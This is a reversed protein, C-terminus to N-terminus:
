ERRDRGDRLPPNLGQPREALAGSLTANELEITRAREKEAELEHRLRRNQAKQGLWLAGFLIVLAIQVIEAPIM